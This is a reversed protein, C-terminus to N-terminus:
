KNLGTKIAKVMGEIDGTEIFNVGQEIYFAAENHDKIDYLMWQSSLRHLTEPIKQYNCILYDPQLQKAYRLSARNYTKLVWGTSLQSYRKTYSIANFNFSILVCQVSYPTLIKLLPKMVSDIGSNNLSEEKIEVFAKANPYYPLLALIEKLLPVPQPFFRQLFAQPQHVSITNLDNTTSEKVLRDIGSTRKFNADHIVVFDQDANMQLDFEINAGLRLANSLALHTNEPYHTMDGRHAVLNPLTIM